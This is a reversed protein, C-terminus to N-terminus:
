QRTGWNRCEELVMKEEEGVCDNFVPYSMVFRMVCRAAAMISLDVDIGCTLKGKEVNFPISEKSAFSTHHLQFEFGNPNMRVEASLNDFVHRGQGCTEFRLSCYADGEEGGFAGCVPRYVEVSQGLRRGLRLRNQRVNWSPTENISKGALIHAQMSTVEFPLEGSSLHELEFVGLGPDSSFFRTTKSFERAGREFGVYGLFRNQTLPYLLNMRASLGLTSRNVEEWQPDNIRLSKLPALLFADTSSLIISQYYDAGHFEASGFFFYSHENFQKFAIWGSRGVHEVPNRTIELKCLTSHRQASYSVKQLDINTEASIMGDTDFRVRVRQTNPWRLSQKGFTANQSLSKRWTWECTAKYSFKLKGHRAMSAVLMWDESTAIEPDTQAYKRWDSTRALYSGSAVTNRSALTRAADPEFFALHRDEEEHRATKPWAGHKQWQDNQLYDRGEWARITGGYALSVSPDQELIDLLSACHNRHLVDDDDLLGFYKTEIENLAKWLRKSKPGDSAEPMLKFRHFAQEGFSSIENVDDYDGHMVLIVNVPGVSQNAISRLARWVFDLSRNGSRVIYTIEEAGVASTGGAYGSAIEIEKRLEELNQLAREYTHKGMVKRHLRRAKAEAESPNNRTREVIAKVYYAVESPSANTPVYYADDGLLNMFYPHKDIIPICGASIAEFPRVTPMDDQLHTPFHLCLALGGERYEQIISHGDFPVDSVVNRYGEWRDRPGIITLLDEEDIKKLWSSYRSAGLKTKAEWNTGSYVVRANAFDPTTFDTENCTALMRSGVFIKGISACLDKAMGKIQDSAYLYGDYSTFAALLNGSSLYVSSPVWAALVTPHDTLKALQHCLSIVLDPEYENIARSNRCIRVSHGNFVAGAAIRNELENEASVSWPNLIAIKM